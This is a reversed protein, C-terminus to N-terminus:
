SAEARPLLVGCNCSDVVRTAMEASALQALDFVPLGTAAAAERTALPSACIRGSLAVVPLNRERLWAVGGCAGMADGVAFVLGDLSKQFVTSGLLAATEQQLLGDAIELVAVAAGAGHLHAIAQAAVRELEALCVRYTSVHGFDTFDLSVLAGADRMLGIDGGAGTGTIKAAGVKFGARSLGKILHAASTTKGSNMSTGAVAIVLPRPWGCIVAPLTWNALNIRRGQADGLLGLPQILTPTKVSAHRTVMRAAVGGAAVLHCEGLDDPVEAEFQDPAYRNGYCVIIEDGEFLPARRSHPSELCPHQGIKVVRALVLDGACPVADSMLRVAVSMDVRRTTYAAKARTVRQLALADGIDRHADASLASLTLGMITM